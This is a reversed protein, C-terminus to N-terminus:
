KEVKFGYSSGAEIETMDVGTMGYEGNVYFAWYTGDIDFDATIGNVKKVYLGFEGEDGEILGLEQLAEGVITKDTSIEFVTENGDGDTVTFTFVTNGEGLKTIGDAKASTTEATSTAVTTQVAASTGSEPSETTNDTCGSLLAATWTLVVCLILSLLKTKSTTKM